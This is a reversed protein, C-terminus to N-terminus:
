AVVSFPYCWYNSCGTCMDRQSLYFNFVTFRSTEAKEDVEDVTGLSVEKYGTVFVFFFDWFLCVSWGFKLDQCRM